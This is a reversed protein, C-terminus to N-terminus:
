PQECEGPLADTFVVAIGKDTVRSVEGNRKIHGKENPAPYSVTIADGVALTALTAIFAGGASLSHIIGRFFRGGVSFDVEVRRNIRPYHRKERVTMTKREAEHRVRQFEETLSRYKRGFRLAQWSVFLALLSLLGAAV